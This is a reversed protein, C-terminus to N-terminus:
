EVKACDECLVETETLVAIEKYVMVGCKACPQWWGNELFVAAPLDEESRYEDAWPLRNVNIKTFEEDHAAAFLAKAKGATTTHVIHSCGHYDDHWVYAKLKEAETM